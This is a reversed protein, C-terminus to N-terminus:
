AENLVIYQLVSVPTGWMFISFTAKKKKLTFEARLGERQLEEPLADPRWQQGDEGIIAWFGGELAQYRVTGIIVM